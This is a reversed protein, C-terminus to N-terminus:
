DNKEGEKIEERMEEMHKDELIEAMLDHLQGWVDDIEKMKRYQHEYCLRLEEIQHMYEKHEDEHSPIRFAIFSGSSRRILRYSTHDLQKMACNFCWKVSWGKKFVPIDFVESCSYTQGCSWCAESSM